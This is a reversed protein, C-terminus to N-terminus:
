VHVALKLPRTKVFVPDALHVAGDVMQLAQIAAVPADGRGVTELRLHIFGPAPASM